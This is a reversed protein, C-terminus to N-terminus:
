RLSTTIDVVRSDSLVSGRLHLIHANTHERYKAYEQVVEHPVKYAGTVTFAADFLVGIVFDFDSSDLERFPRPM